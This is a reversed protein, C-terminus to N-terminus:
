SPERELNLAFELLGHDETTVVGAFSPDQIDYDAFVVPISGAVQVTAGSWRGSLEFTATPFRSTEM